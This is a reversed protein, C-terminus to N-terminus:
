GIKGGSIRQITSVGCFDIYFFVLLYLWIEVLPHCKIESVREAASHIMNVYQYLVIFTFLSSPKEPM